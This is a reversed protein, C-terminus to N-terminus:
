EVDIEKFNKVTSNLLLFLMIQLLLSLSCTVLSAGMSEIVENKNFLKIVVILIAAIASLAAYAPFLSKWRLSTKVDILETLYSMARHLFWVYVVTGAINQLLYEIEGGRGGILNRLGTFYDLAVMAVCSIAVMWFSREFQKLEVYYTLELLILILFAVKAFGLIYESKEFLSNVFNASRSSWNKMYSSLGYVRIIDIVLVGLQIWLFIKQIILNKQLIGTSGKLYRVEETWEEEDLIDEQETGETEEIEEIEEGCVPCVKVGEPLEQGCSRCFM